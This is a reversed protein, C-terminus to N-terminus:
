HPMPMLDEPKFWLTQGSKDLSVRCRNKEPEVKVIRGFRDGMMWRDTAPHLEVPRGVYPCVTEENEGGRTSLFM